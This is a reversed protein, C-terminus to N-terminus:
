IAVYGHPHNSHWRWTDELIVDLDARQPQWGLERQALESSAVLAVPDGVRRPADVTPFDVGTIARAREVVERVTHGEGNGLNYAGCRNEHLLARLALVHADALDVVHIYDRICTGDRTDYDTGFVELTGVQGLAAQMCLTILHTKHHHDPGHQGSPDAGAANFYRLSIPALGYANAHDHIAMEAAVKTQGYPNTAVLPMDETIPVRPPNGYVAATSSFVLKDIDTDVMARLLALTGVVNNRWFRDPEIVSLGAEISAAFHLVADAGSLAVGLARQDHVAGKVVCVDSPLAAQHGTSFDDLVTVDSGAALLARVTQSGIYGAGGTVVVHM